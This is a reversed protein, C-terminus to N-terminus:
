IHSWRVHASRIVTSRERFSREVLATLDDARVYDNSYHTSASVALVFFIRTLIHRRPVTNM